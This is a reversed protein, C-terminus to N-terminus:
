GELLAIAEAQEALKACDLPTMGAVNKATKSAGNALLVKMVEVLGTLAALHLPTRKSTDRANVNAGEDLLVQAVEVHGRDAAYHLPTWGDSDAADLNVSRNPQVAFMARVVPLNGSFAAHHLLTMKQTDEETLCGGNSIYEM